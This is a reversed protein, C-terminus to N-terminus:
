RNTDIPLANIIRRARSEWTYHAADLKAQRGLQCRLDAASMLRTLQESWCAMNDYAAILCNIEPRLVEQLVPLDSAIIPRGAALYEFMKMPSCVAATDGTGAHALQHAYPMLLIDAARLYTFVKQPAVFGEFTLNRLDAGQTKWYAIDQERGGVVLFRADPHRKALEVVIEIGRGPYLHGTYVVLTEQLNLGLRQRAQDQDLPSNVLSEEVGDPAIVLRTQPSISGSIKEQLSATIAVLAVFQKRRSSSRICKELLSGQAPVDHLEFVTPQAFLTTLGWAAWPNRSHYFDARTKRIALWPTAMACFLKLPRFNKIREIRFNPTVGYYEYVDAVEPEVANGYEPVVLTVEHNQKAYAQCMKM